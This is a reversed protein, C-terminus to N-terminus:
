QFSLEVSNKLALFHVKGRPVSAFIVRKDPFDHLVSLIERESEILPLFIGLALQRSCFTLACDCNWHEDVGVFKKRETVLPFYWKVFFRACFEGVTSTGCTVGHSHSGGRTERGPSLELTVSFGLADAKAPAKNCFPLRLFRSAINKV